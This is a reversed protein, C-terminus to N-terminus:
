NLWTNAPKSSLLRFNGSGMLRMVLSVDRQVLLDTYGIVMAMGTIKSEPFHSYMVDTVDILTNKGEAILDFCQDKRMNIRELQRDIVM